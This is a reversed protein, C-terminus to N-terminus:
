FDYQLYKKGYQIITIDVRFRGFRGWTYLLNLIETLNQPNKYSSKLIKWFAGWGGRLLTPLLNLM